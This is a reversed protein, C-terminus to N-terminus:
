ASIRSHVKTQNVARSTIDTLTKRNAEAFASFQQGFDNFADFGKLWGAHHSSGNGQSALHATVLNTTEKQAETVINQVSQFYATAIESMALPAAKKAKSSSMAGNAELMAAAAAASEELSNRTTSLNLTTLQEISSFAITSFAMFADINAKIAHTVEANTNLM